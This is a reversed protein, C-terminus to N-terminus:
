NYNINIETTGFYSGMYKNDPKIIVGEVIFEQEENNSSLELSNLLKMNTLEIKNSSSALTSSSSISIDYIRNKYSNIKLKASKKANLSSMIISGSDVVPYNKNNDNDPKITLEISDSIALSSIPVINVTVTATATAADIEFCTFLLGSFLLFRKFLNTTM